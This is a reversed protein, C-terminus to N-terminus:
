DGEALLVGLAISNLKSDKSDSRSLLVIPVRAGLIIGGGIAGGLSLLAKVIHNVATISPGIFIDTCGAIESAIGKLEAASRSLAVDLAIPGELCFNQRGAYRKVTRDAFVTEPLSETIKEVLTLLAINPRPIDCAGTVQLANEIISDVTNDDLHLNVGGDTWFMLKDYAPSEVVAVHSLRQQTTLGTTKDLVAQLLTATDLDGKMLLSANGARVAAVAQRAAEAPDQARFLSPRIWGEAEAADLAELIHSQKPEVVALTVPSQRRLAAYLHSYSTIM